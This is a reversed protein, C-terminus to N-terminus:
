RCGIDAEGSEAGVSLVTARLPTAVIPVHVHINKPEKGNFIGREVTLLCEVGVKIGCTHVLATETATNGVEGIPAGVVGVVRNDRASEGVGETVLRANLGEGEGSLLCLSVARLVGLTNRGITTDFIREAMNPLPSVSEEGLARTVIRAVLLHIDATVTAAVCTGEVIGVNIHAM